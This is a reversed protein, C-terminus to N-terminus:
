NLRYGISRIATFYNKSGDPDIKKILRNITVNVTRKQTEEDKWIANLIYDRELIIKKHEIFFKLLDFKQKTLEVEVGDIYAKRTNSDLVIDRYSIREHKLGHTRRLLAKSRYLLERISYPKAIHDDAGYIFGQEIKEESYNDSLFILPTEIGKGHLYQIYEIGDIPFGECDLIILHIAEQHTEIGKISNSLTINFFKEHQHLQEAIIDGNDQSIIMINAITVM